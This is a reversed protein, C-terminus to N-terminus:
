KEILGRLAESAIVHAKHLGDKEDVPIRAITALATMAFDLPKPKYGNKQEERTIDPAILRMRAVSRKSPWDPYGALFEPLTVYLVTNGEARRRVLVGDINKLWRTFEAQHMLPMRKKECWRVFDDYFPRTTAWANNPMSGVYVLRETAWEKISPPLTIM